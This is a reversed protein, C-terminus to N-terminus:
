RGKMIKNFLEMDISVEKPFLSLGLVAAQCHIGHASRSKLVLAVDKSTLGKEAMKKLVDKEKDTWPKGAM